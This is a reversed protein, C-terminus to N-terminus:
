LIYKLHRMYFTRGTSIICRGIDAVNPYKRASTAVMDIVISKNRSRASLHNTVTNVVNLRYRSRQLSGLSYGIYHNVDIAGYLSTSRLISSTPWVHSLTVTNSLLCNFLYRFLQMLNQIQNFYSYRYREM